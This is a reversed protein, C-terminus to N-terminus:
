AFCTKLSLCVSTEWEPSTMSTLNFSKVTRVPLCPRKVEGRCGSVRVSQMICFTLTLNCPLPARISSFTNSDRGYIGQMYNFWDLNFITYSPSRPHTFVLSLLHLLIGSLLPFLFRIGVLIKRENKETTTIGRAVWNMYGVRNEKVKVKLMLGIYFFPPAM